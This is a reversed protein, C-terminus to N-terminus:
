SLAELWPDGPHVIELAERLWSRQRGSLSAVVREFDRQDKDLHHKAKYLLQVEPAVIPIGAASVMFVDSFPLTVRPDRRCIWVGNEVENLFFQREEPSPEWPDSPPGSAPPRALVQHIPLELSEGAPWPLWEEFSKYLGWGEFHDRLKDQDARLIGIELDDHERTVQDLFLDIAWGGCVFWPGPFGEM